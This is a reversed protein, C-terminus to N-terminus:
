QHENGNPEQWRRLGQWRWRWDPAIGTEIRSRFGTDKQVVGGALKIGGNSKVRELGVGGTTVVGRETKIRHQEVGRAAEIHANAASAKLFLM